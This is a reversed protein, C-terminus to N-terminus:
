MLNVCHLGMIQAAFPNINGSDVTYTRNLYMENVLTLFALTLDEHEDAEEETLGTYSLVFSKAGAAVASLIDDSDTGSVGCFDKIQEQRIESLKM